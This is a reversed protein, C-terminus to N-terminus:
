EASVNSGGIDIRYASVSYEYLMNEDPFVVMFPVSQRPLVTATAAPPKHFVGSGFAAVVAQTDMVSLRERSLVHGCLRRLSAIVSGDRDYLIVTVAVHDLAASTGNLVEGEIVVAQRGDRLPQMYQRVHRLHLTNEEALCLSVGGSM